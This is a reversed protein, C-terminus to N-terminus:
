APLVRVMVSMSVQGYKAGAGGRGRWACNLAQMVRGVSPLRRSNFHRAFPVVAESVPYLPIPLLARNEGNHAVENVEDGVTAM